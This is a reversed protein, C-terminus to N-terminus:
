MILLPPSSGASTSRPVKGLCSATRTILWVEGNANLHGLIQSGNTSFIENVAIASASPQVFNVTEDSGVNFSLWDLFLNQSEQQITTTDGAQSIRGKGSVVQGGLPHSAAGVSCASAVCPAAAPPAAHALPALAFFSLVGIVVGSKSIAARGSKGRGRATEAVPV